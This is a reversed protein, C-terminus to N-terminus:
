RVTARWGDNTLSWFGEEDRQINKLNHQELTLLADLQEKAIGTSEILEETRQAGGNELSVLITARLVKDNAYKMAM